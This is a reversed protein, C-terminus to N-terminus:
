QTSWGCVLDLEAASDTKPRIRTWLVSMQHERKGDHPRGDSEYWDMWDVQTQREKCDFAVSSISFLTTPWRIDTRRPPFVSKFIVHRVVGSVRLSSKDVYYTGFQNGKLLTWNIRPIQCAPFNDLLRQEEKAWAIQKPGRGVGPDTSQHASYQLWWRQVAGIKWHGDIKSLVLGRIDEQHYLALWVQATCQSGDECDCGNTVGSINVIFGPYAESAAQQIERVEEDNINEQRLNGAAHAPDTTRIHRFWEPTDGQQSTNVSKALAAAAFLFTLLAEVTVM